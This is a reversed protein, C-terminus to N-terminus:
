HIVVKLHPSVDKWICIHGGVLLITRGRYGWLQHVFYNAPSERPTEWSLKSAHLAFEGCLTLDKLFLMVKISIINFFLNQLM